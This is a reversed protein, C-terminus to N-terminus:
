IKIKNRASASPRLLLYLFLLYGRLNYGCCVEVWDLGDDLRHFGHSFCGQDLVRVLRGPASFFLLIYIFSAVLLFCRGFVWPVFGVTLFVLFVWIQLLPVLSLEDATFAKLLGQRSIVSCLWARLYYYQLWIFGPRPALPLM